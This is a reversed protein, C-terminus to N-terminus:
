RTDLAFLAHDSRRQLHSPPQCRVASHSAVVEYAEFAAAHDCSNQDSNSAALRAPNEDAVAEFVMKTMCCTYNADKKPPTLNAQRGRSTGLDADNALWVGPM